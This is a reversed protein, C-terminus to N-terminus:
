ATLRHVEAGPGSFVAGETSADDLLAGELDAGQLNSGDLIAGRLDAGAM